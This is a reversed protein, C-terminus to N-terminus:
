IRRRSTSRFQAINPTRSYSCLAVKLKLWARLQTETAEKAAAVGNRAIANAAEAEEVAEQTARLTRVVYILGAVGIISQGLALVLAWGAWRASDQQAVLSARENAREEDSKDKMAIAEAANAVRSIATETKVASKESVISPASPPEKAMAGSVAVVALAVALTAKQVM